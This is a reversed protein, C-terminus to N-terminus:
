ARYVLCMFIYLAHDNDLSVRLGLAWLHLLYIDSLYNRWWLFIFFSLFESSPIVLYPGFWSHKTSPFYFRRCTLICQTTEQVNSVSPFFPNKMSLSLFTYDLVPSFSCSPFVIHLKGCQLVLLTLHREWLAWFIFTFKVPCYWISFFVLLWRYLQLSQCFSPCREWHIVWRGKRQFQTDVLASFKVLEHM